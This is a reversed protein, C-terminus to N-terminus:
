VTNPLSANAVRTREVYTRAVQEAWFFQRYGTPDGLRKSQYTTGDWRHDYVRYNHEMYREITVYEPTERNFVNACYMVTQM